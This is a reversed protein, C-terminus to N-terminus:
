AMIYIWLVYYKPLIAWLPIQYLIINLLLILQLIHFIYCMLILKFLNYAIIKLKHKQLLWLIFIKDINVNLYILVLIISM